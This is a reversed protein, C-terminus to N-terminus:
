HSPPVPTGTPKHPTPTAEPKNGGNPTPTSEPKNGNDGSNSNSDDLQIGHELKVMGDPNIIGLNKPKKGNWALLFVYKGNQLQGQIATVQDDLILRMQPDLNEGEVTVQLQKKGEGILRAQIKKIQPVQEGLRALSSTTLDGEEPSLTRLNKRLIQRADTKLTEIKQQLQTKDAGAPLANVDSIFADLSQHFNALSVRYHAAQAPNAQQELLNLYDRAQQDHLKAQALASTGTPTMMQNRVQLPNGSGANRLLVLAVSGLVLLVGLVAASVLLSSRSQLALLSVDWRRKQQHAVAAHALVRQELQDAFDSHVKLQPAQQLQQSLEVLPKIEPDPSAQQSTFQDNLREPQSKM